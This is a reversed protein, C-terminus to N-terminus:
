DSVIQLWEIGFRNLYKRLRDADNTVAKRGRSVSFLKRGADSLSRSDRCIQIVRALQVRDFLDLEELREKGLLDALSDEVDSAELKAWASRLREIEERVLDVSVRGGPALTAMRVIAANLDRFNGLWVASSSLAYDLFLERAEKSFTVRRGAREAYQDLEFQINPEIDEPRSRLGPLTFPWLNIRALLDERFRGERVAVLLDRNTGAILQFDSHVERDSGFPLFTKEELARLLMAQEDIGLEGIEDLFLVGKDATRLVGPRDRLAGTFAGKVHGFLTSMAADGRLTACNVDVFEGTVTHRLKKLEFIRRALKSKGAGTPGMLLLTDRTAIAVQEIRDILQNFASNRTDIGGKLYSVADSQEQRFRSAIRDYKSLDLDIIKIEGPAARDREPSAQLLRGPLYRSETLLFLCIQAVHTGTTIHILYDETDADFPYTRAFKFLTEYVREFDWPDGFEIENLRVTTEPSVAAIDKALLQALSKDRLGHLLELRKVVFDPQRCLAVTPRWSQWRDQQRGADLTTGLLGIVINAKQGMDM